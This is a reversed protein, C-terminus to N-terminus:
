LELLGEPINVFITKTNNDIDTITHEHVPILIENSEKFLQLLYNENYNLITTAIGIEGYKSDVVRYGKIDKIVSHSQSSRQKKLEQIWVEYGIYEEMEEASHIDAFKVIASTETRVIIESVFFPVPARDILLFLWETKEFKKQFVADAILVAEGQIGHLKTLKGIRRHNETSM